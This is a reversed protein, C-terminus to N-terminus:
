HSGMTGQHCYHKLVKMSKIREEIQKFKTEQQEQEIFAGWLLDDLDNM